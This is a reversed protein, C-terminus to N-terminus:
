GRKGRKKPFTADDLPSTDDPAKALSRKLGRLENQLALVTSWLMKDDGYAFVQEESQANELLKLAEGTTPTSGFPPANEMIIQLSRVADDTENGRSEVVKEPVDEFQSESDSSRSESASSM